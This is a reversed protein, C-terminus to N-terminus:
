AEDKEGKEEGSDFIGPIPLVEMIGASIDTSKIMHAVAPFLHKKGDGTIEYVDNAGTPIVDTLTGYIKGTVGDKVTLGLIDQIFFKGEPMHIDARNLYLIKGRLTDAKEPSDVGDLTLLLMKKHIRRSAMKLETKGEDFYLRAINKLTEPSDSWVEAKM